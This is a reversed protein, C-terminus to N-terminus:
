AAGPRPPFAPSRFFLFIFFLDPFPGLVGQILCSPVKEQRFEQSGKRVPFQFHCHAESIASSLSLSNFSHSPQTAKEVDSASSGPFFWDGAQLARLEPPASTRLLQDISFSSVLGDLCVARGKSM